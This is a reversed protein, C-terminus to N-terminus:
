ESLVVIEIELLDDFHPGPQPHLFVIRHSPMLGIEGHKQM